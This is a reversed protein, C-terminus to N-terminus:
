HRHEGHHARVLGVRPLRAPVRQQEALALLVRPKHGPVLLCHDFRAVLDHTRDDAAADGATLEPGIGVDLDAPERQHPGDQGLLLGGVALQVAIKGGMDHVFQQEAQGSALKLRQADDVLPAVQHALFGVFRVLDADSEAANVAIHTAGARAYESVTAAVAAAPSDAPVSVFVVIDAVGTATRDAQFQRVSTRVDDPSVGGPIILGDALEGALAVTRPRIGGVLLPPVATPPWDLAVQDLHVYRGHTTVTDGQLLAYLATTYERLLTLPSEVRAGVQGMWDLVGHGIGATLRGPFLRAMTAIEMATLAVNRLPVPLLGIGVTVRSTAALIATATAIGSESFCDEWVWLQPLGAAEAASAVAGLREPAQTPPFIAALTTV